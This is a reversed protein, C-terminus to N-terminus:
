LRQCRELEQEYTPNGPQCHYTVTCGFLATEQEIYEECDESRPHYTNQVAAGESKAFERFDFTGFLLISCGSFLSIDIIEAGEPLVRGLKQAANLYASFEERTM